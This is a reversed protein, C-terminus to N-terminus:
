EFMQKLQIRRKRQAIMKADMGEYNYNYEWSKKEHYVNEPKQQPAKCAQKPEKPKTQRAPKAVNSAQTLEHKVTSVDQKM